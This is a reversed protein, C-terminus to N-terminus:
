GSTHSGKTFKNSVNHKKDLEIIRVKNETNSQFSCLGLRFTSPKQSWHMAYVPWPTESAYHMPIESMYLKKQISVFHIQGYLLYKACVLM